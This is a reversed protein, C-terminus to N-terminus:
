PSLTVIRTKTAGVALEARRLWRLYRIVVTPVTNSPKSTVLEDASQYCVRRYVSRTRARLSHTWLQLSLFCQVPYHALRQTGPAQLDSLFGPLFGESFLVWTGGTHLANYVKGKCSVRFQNGTGNWLHCFQLEGFHLWRALAVCSSYVLM